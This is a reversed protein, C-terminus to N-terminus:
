LLITTKISEHLNLIEVQRIKDKSLPIKIVFDM